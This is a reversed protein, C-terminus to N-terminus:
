PESKPRRAKTKSQILAVMSAQAYPVHGTRMAAMLLAEIVGQAVETRRENEPLKLLFRRADALTQLPKGNPVKVPPRFRASWFM